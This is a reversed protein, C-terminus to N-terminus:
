VWNEKPWLGVSARKGTQRRQLPQDDNHQCWGSPVPHLFGLLVGARHSRLHFPLSLYGERGRQEGAHPLSNGLFARCRLCSTPPLQVSSLWRQFLYKRASTVFVLQQRQELGAQGSLSTCAERVQGHGPNPDTGLIGLNAWSDQPCDPPNLLYQRLRGPDRPAHLSVPLM